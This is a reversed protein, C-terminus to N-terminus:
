MEFSIKKLSNSADRISIYNGDPVYILFHRYNQSYNTPKFSLGIIHVSVHFSQRIMKYVWVSAVVLGVDHKITM